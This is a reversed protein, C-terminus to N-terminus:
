GTPPSAAEKRDSLVNAWFLSALAVALAAAAFPGFPVGPYWGLYGLLLLSAFAALLVFAVADLATPSLATATPPTEASVM